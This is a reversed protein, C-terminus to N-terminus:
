RPTSRCASRSRTAPRASRASRCPAPARRRRARRRLSGRGGAPRARAAALEALWEFTGVLDRVHGAQLVYAVLRSTAPQAKGRLLDEVLGVRRRLPSRHTASPTRALARNADVIKAFRFLEDEIEDIRELRDVEQFLRDAYGRIRERVATRGGLLEEPPVLLLRGAEAADATQEALELLAPVVLPFEGPLKSSPPGPWCRRLSRRRRARSCTM